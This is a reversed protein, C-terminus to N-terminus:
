TDQLIKSSLLDYFPSLSEISQIELSAVWLCSSDGPWEGFKVADKETLIILDAGVKLSYKMIKKFDRKRYRHHDSFKLHGVVKAASDREIMYHFHEPRAIGSVLLVKSHSLYQQDKVKMGTFDTVEKLHYELRFLHYKKGTMVKEILRLIQAEKLSNIWNIKTLFIVDARKLAQYPERLRGLPILENHGDFQTADFVVINLDRHLRRHQFGDDVICFHPSSELIARKGVRVKDPGTYVVMDPHKRALMTPEDGCLYASKAHSPDVKQVQASTAKYGRSLIAAKIGRRHAWTAILDVVPTKGTGGVSLNGVSVVPRQLKFTPLLRLLYAMNRFFVIAGFIWSLPALLIKKM